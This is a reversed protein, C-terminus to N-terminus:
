DLKGALAMDLQERSAAYGHREGFGDGPENGRCSRGTEDEGRDRLGVPVLIVAAAAPFPAIPIIVM